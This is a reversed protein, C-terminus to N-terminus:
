PEDRDRARRRLLFPYGAVGVASFLFWQVAYGLHPGDGLAPPTVPVLADDDVATVQLVVPLAVAPDLGLREVATRTPRDLRDVPILIGEVEVEVDPPAPPELGGDPATPLFGRLVVLAEEDGGDLDLVGLVYGGPRGGQNSRVVETAGAGARFTGAATAHRFRLDDTRDPGDGPDALDGAPAAPLAQQAAVLENRDRREDLRRLQWLGLNVMLVVLGLVLLHTAVWRPSRAFRYDAAGRGPM